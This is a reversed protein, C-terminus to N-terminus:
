PHVPLDPLHYDAVIATGTRTDVEIMTTRIDLGATRLDYIRGSLRAIGLDLFADMTTISGERKIYDLVRQCQPSLKPPSFDLTLQDAM